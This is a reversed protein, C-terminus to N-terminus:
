DILTKALDDKMKNFTMISAEFACYDTVDLDKMQMKAEINKLAIEFGRLLIFKDFRSKATEFSLMFATGIAFVRQESCKYYDFKVGNEDFTFYREQSEHQFWINEIALALEQILSKNKKM